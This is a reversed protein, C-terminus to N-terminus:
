VVPLAVPSPVGVMLGRFALVMSVDWENDHAKAGRAQMLMGVGRAHGM